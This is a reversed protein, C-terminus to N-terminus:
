GQSAIFRSFEEISSEFGFEDNVVFYNQKDVTRQYAYKALELKSSEFSFANMLRAVQRSSLFNTSIFQKAMTMKTSEFSRSQVSQLLQNFDEECVYDQYPQYYHPQEYVQPAPPLLPRQERIRFSNRSVVAVVETAYPIYVMGSFITRYVPHYRSGSLRMIRVFHDGENLNNIYVTNSPNTPHMRDIVVSIRSGDLSTVSLVSEAYYGAKAALAVSLIVLTTFLKKM